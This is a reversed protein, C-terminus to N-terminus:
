FWNILDLTQNWRDYLTLVYDIGYYVSSCLDDDMIAYNNLMAWIVLVQVKAGLLPYQPQQLAAM